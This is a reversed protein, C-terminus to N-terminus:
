DSAGQELRQLMVANERSVGDQWGMRFEGDLCLLTAEEQLRRWFVWRSKPVAWM